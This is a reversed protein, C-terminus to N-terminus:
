IELIWAQVFEEAAYWELGAFVGIDGECGSM